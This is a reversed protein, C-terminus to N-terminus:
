SSEGTLIDVGSTLHSPSLHAYRETVSISSHGLWTKVRYLDMGGQVLRSACTHRLTHLSVDPLGCADRLRTFRNTAQHRTWVPVMLLATQARPTLPVSRSQGNKTDIFTIQGQSHRPAKLLETLRAGTDALVAILAQMRAADISPWLEEAKVMLAHEEEQSIWRLKTMPEARYPFPPKVTLKGRKLAETLAKSIMALYRNITADKLGEVELVESFKVLSDYDVSQVLQDSLPHGRCFKTLRRLVGVASKQKSWIRDYCDHLAESLTWDLEGADRRVEALLTLACEQAEPLTKKGTSTRKRKGDADKYSVMYIGNSRKTLKM